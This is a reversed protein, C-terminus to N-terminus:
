DGIIINWKLNLSKEESDHELNHKRIFNNCEENSEFVVKSSPILGWGDEFEYPCISFEVFGISNAEELMNSLDVAIEYWYQETFVKKIMVKEDPLILWWKDM